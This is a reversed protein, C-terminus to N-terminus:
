SGSRNNGLIGDAAHIGANDVTIRSQHVANYVAHYLLRPFIGFDDSCTTQRGQYGFNGFRDLANFFEQGQM